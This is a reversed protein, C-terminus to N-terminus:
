LIRGNTFVFVSSFGSLKSNSKFRKKLGLAMQLRTFRAQMRHEDPTENVLVPESKALTAM